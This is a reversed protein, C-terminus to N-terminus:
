LIGTWGMLAKFGFTKCINELIFYYNETKNDDNIWNASYIRLTSLDESFSKTINYSVGTLNTIDNLLDIVSYINSSSNYSKRKLTSLSSEFNLTFVEDFGTNDISYVEPLLYGIFQKNDFTITVKHTEYDITGFQNYTDPTGIFSISGM